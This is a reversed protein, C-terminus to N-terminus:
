ELVAPSGKRFRQMRESWKTEPCSKEIQNMLEIMQKEYEDEDTDIGKVLKSISDLMENRRSKATTNKNSNVKRTNRRIMIRLKSINTILRSKIEKITKNIETINLNNIIYKATSDIIIKSSNFLLRGDQVRRGAAIVALSVSIFSLRLLQMREKVGEPVKMINKLLNWANKLQDKSFSYNNSSDETPEPRLRSVIGSLINLFRQISEKMDLPEEDLNIPTLPPRPAEPSEAPSEPVNAAEADAVSEAPPEILHSLNIDEIDLPKDNESNATLLPDVAPAIGTGAGEGAGESSNERAGLYKQYDMAKRFMDVEANTDETARDLERRAINMEKFADRISIKAGRILNNAAKNEQLRVLNESRLRHTEVAENYKDQAYRATEELKALLENHDEIVTDLQEKLKIKLEELNKGSSMEAIYSEATLIALENQTLPNESLKSYKSGTVGGGSKKSNVSKKSIKNKVTNRTYVRVMRINYLIYKSPM